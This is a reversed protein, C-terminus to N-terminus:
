EAFNIPKIQGFDGARRLTIGKERLQIRCVPLLDLRLVIWRDIISGAITENRQAPYLFPGAAGQHKTTSSRRPLRAQSAPAALKAFKALMGKKPREKTMVWSEKRKAIEEDSLDVNITNNVADITIKDGDQLIGITGGTAAEPTIHGIM